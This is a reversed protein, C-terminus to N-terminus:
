RRWERESRLYHVLADVGHDVVGWREKIKGYAKFVKLDLALADTLSARASFLAVM